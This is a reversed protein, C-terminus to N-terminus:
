SLQHCNENDNNNVNVNDNNNDNSEDVLRNDGVEDNADEDLENATKKIKKDWIKKGLFFGIGIGIVLLLCIIIIKWAISIGSSSNNNTKNDKINNVFTILKKDYDFIFSYKKLFPKGLRWYDVSKINFILFLIRQGYEVFLDKYTLEFTYDFEKHTLYINPLKKREEETFLNKDCNIVRVGSTYETTENVVCYKNDLYTQFYLNIINEYFAKDCQIFELDISFDFFMETATYHRIDDKPFQIFIEDLYSKWEVYYESIGSYTSKTNETGFIEKYDKEQLGGVLFGEYKNRIDKNIKENYYEKNNFFVFSFSYSNIVGVKELTTIFNDGPQGGVMNRSRFGIIGCIQDDSATVEKKFISKGFIFKLGSFTNNTKLNLDNFMSCKDECNYGPQLIYTYSNYVSINKFTTSSETTYSSKSNSYCLGQGVLFLYEEMGLFFEAGESKSGLSITTLLYDKDVIYNLDDKTFSTPNKPHQLKKPSNFPLVIYNLSFNIKLTLFLIFFLKSM